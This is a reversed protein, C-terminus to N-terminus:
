QQWSEGSKGADLHGAVADNVAPVDPRKHGALGACLRRVLGIKVVPALMQLGHPAAFPFQVQRVTIIMGVRWTLISLRTLVSLTFDADRQEIEFGVDPFGLVKGLLM